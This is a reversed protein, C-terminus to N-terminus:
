KSASKKLSADLVLSKMCLGDTSNVESIEEKLFEELEKATNWKSPESFCSQDDKFWMVLFLGYRSRNAKLYQPLQKKYGKKIGTHHALKFEVCVCLAERNKNTYLFKFDLRGIGEDSEAIVNIGKKELGEKFAFLLTPQIHTESKPNAKKIIKRGKKVEENWFAEIWRRDEIHHKLCNVIFDEVCDYLDKETVIEQIYSYASVDAKIKEIFSRHSDRGYLYNVMQFVLENNLDDLSLARYYRRIFFSFDSDKLTNYNNSELWHNIIKLVELKDGDVSYGLIKAEEAKAKDFKFGTEHEPDFWDALLGRVILGIIKKPYTREYNDLFRSAHAVDMGPINVGIYDNEINKLFWDSTSDVVEIGIECERDNYNFKYEGSEIDVHPPLYFFFGSVIDKPDLKKLEQIDGYTRTLGNLEM